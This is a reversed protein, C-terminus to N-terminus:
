PISIPLRRTRPGALQPCARGRPGAMYILWGVAIVMWFSVLRYVLVAGIASPHRVGAGMLTVALAAEVAGLGGPSVGVSGAAAGVGYAFLLGRWPIPAGV